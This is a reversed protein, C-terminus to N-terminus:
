LSKELQEIALEVIAWTVFLSSVNYLDAIYHKANDLTILGLRYARIVIGLSGVPTINLRYAEERVSMDDTLIVSIGIYQCLYFCECEGDQLEELSNKQIFMMVESQPLNHQQFIGLSLIDEQSVRNQGVTELWVANPIHLIEFIHLLSLCGIERLHIIPGADAVAGSVKGNGM